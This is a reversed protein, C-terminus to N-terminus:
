AGGIGLFDRLEADSATEFDPTDNGLFTCRAYSNYSRMNADESPGFLLEDGKVFYCTNAEHTGWRTRTMDNWRIGHEALIDFLEYSLSEEPCHIVVGQRLSLMSIDFPTEWM